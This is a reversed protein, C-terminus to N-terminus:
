QIPIGLHCNDM